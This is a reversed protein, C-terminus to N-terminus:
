ERRKLNQLEEIMSKSLVLYSTLVPANKCVEQLNKLHRLTGCVHYVDMQPAFTRAVHEWIKLNFKYREMYSTCLTVREEENTKDENENRGLGFTNETERQEGKRCRRPRLKRNQITGLTFGYQKILAVYEEQVTKPLSFLSTKRGSTHTGQDSVTYLDINQFDGNIPLFIKGYSAAMVCSTSDVSYWPFSKMIKMATLGLGHVKKIPKNQKDLLYQKWIRHLGLKRQETHLKAIAGFCIYDTHAMYKELYEEPTGNHYVPLPNLGAERMYKWNKWSGKPDGIVDLNIYFDFLDNHEKIFQIYKDIDIHTGKTWASYAGSDLMIKSM